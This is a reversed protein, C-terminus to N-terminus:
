SCRIGHHSQIRSYRREQGRSHCDGQLRLKETKDSNHEPTKTDTTNETTIGDNKDTDPSNQERNGCAFLSLAVIAMLVLCLFIKVTKKKM